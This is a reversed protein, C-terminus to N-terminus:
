SDDPCGGSMGGGLSQNYYTPNTQFQKLKTPNRLLHDNPHFRADPHMKPPMQYQALREAIFNVRKM